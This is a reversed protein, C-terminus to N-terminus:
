DEGEQAVVSKSSPQLPQGLLGRTCMIHAPQSTNLIKRLIIYGHKIFEPVAVDMGIKTKGTYGAKKIAEVLLHLVETTWRVAEKFSPAGTAGIMIEQMVLRNGTYSGGNIVNM